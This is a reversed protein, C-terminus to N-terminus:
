CCKQTSDILRIRKRARRPFDEDLFPWPSLSIPCAFELFTELFPLLSVASWSPEGTSPLTGRSGADSDAPGDVLLALPRDAPLPFVDPADTERAGVFYTEFPAASLATVAFPEDWDVGRAMGCPWSPWPFEGECEGFGGADDSGRWGAGKSIGAVCVIREVEADALPGVGDLPSASAEELNAGRVRSMSSM